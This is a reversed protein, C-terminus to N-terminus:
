CFAKEILPSVIKSCCRRCHRGNQFDTRGGSSLRSQEGRLMRSRQRERQARSRWPLRRRCRSAQSGQTSRRHRHRARRTIAHRRRAAHCFHARASATNEYPSHMLVVCVCARHATHLCTQSNALMHTHTRAHFSAREHQRQTPLARKANNRRAEDPSLSNFAFLYM